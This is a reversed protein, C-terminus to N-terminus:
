HGSSTQTTEQIQADKCRQSLSGAKTAKSLLPILKLLKPAKFLWFEAERFNGSGLVISNHLIVASSVTNPLLLIIVFSISSKIKVFSSALACSKRCEEGLSL